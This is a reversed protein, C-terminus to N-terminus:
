KWTIKTLDNNLVIPKALKIELSYKLNKEDPINNLLYIKKDLHRAVAIEM